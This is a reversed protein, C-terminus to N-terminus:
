RTGEQDMICTYLDTSSVDIGVYLKM